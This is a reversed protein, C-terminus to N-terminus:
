LNHTSQFDDWLMEVSADTGEDQWGEPRRPPKGFLPKIQNLYTETGQLATKIRKAESEDGEAFKRAVAMPGFLNKFQRFSKHHGELILPVLRHFEGSHAQLFRKLKIEVDIGRGLQRASVQSQSTRQDALRQLYGEIVPLMDALTWRGEYVIEAPIGARVALRMMEEVSRPFSMGYTQEWSNVMEDLENQIQQSDELILNGHFEQSFGFTSQLEASKLANSCLGLNSPLQFDRISLAFLKLLNQARVLGRKTSPNSAIIEHIDNEM